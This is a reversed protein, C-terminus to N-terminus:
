ASLYSPTSLGLVPPRQPLSLIEHDITSQDAVFEKRLVALMRLWSSNREEGPSQAVEAELSAVVFCHMKKACEARLYTRTEQSLKACRVGDFECETM